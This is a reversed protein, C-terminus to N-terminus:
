RRIGITPSNSRVTSATDAERTSSRCGATGHPRLNRTHGILDQGDEGCQARLRIPEDHQANSRARAARDLDGTCQAHVHAPHSLSDFRETADADQADLGQLAAGQFARKAKLKGRAYAEVVRCLMPDGVAYAAVRDDITVLGVPIGRTALVMANLAAENVVRGGIRMEYVVVGRYTHDLIAATTGAGGHYGVFLAVEFRGIDIGEAMSLPKLAGTIVQM